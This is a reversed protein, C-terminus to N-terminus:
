PLNKKKDSAKSHSDLPYDFPKDDLISAGQTRLLNAWEAVMQEIDSEWQASANKDKEKATRGRFGDHKVLYIFLDESYGGEYEGRLDGEAVSIVQADVCRERIDLAIVIAKCEGKFVVKSFTSTTEEDKLSREFGYKGLFSFSEGVQKRFEIVIGTSDGSM